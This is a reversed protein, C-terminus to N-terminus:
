LNLTVWFTTFGIALGSWLDLRKRLREVLARRQEEEVPGEATNILHALVAHFQKDSAFREMNLDVAIAVLAVQM